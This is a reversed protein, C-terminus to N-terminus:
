SVKTRKMSQLLALKAKRKRNVRKTEVRDGQASVEVSREEVPEQDEKEPQDEEGTCFEEPDLTRLESDDDECGIGSQSGDSVWFANKTDDDSNDENDTEERDNGNLNASSEETTHENEVKVQDGTSISDEDQKPKRVREKFLEIRGANDEIKLIATCM